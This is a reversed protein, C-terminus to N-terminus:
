RSFISSSSFRNFGGTVFWGFLVSLRALDCISVIATGVRGIPIDTEFTSSAEGALSSFSTSGSDSEGLNIEGTDIVAYEGLFDAGGFSGFLELSGTMKASSRLENLLCVFGKRTVYRMKLPTKKPKTIFYKWTLMFTKLNNM